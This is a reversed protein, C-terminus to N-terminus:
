GAFRPRWLWLLSRRFPRAGRHKWALAVASIPHRRGWRADSLVRATFALDIERAYPQYVRAFDRVQREAEVVDRGRISECLVRYDSTWRAIHEAIVEDEDDM